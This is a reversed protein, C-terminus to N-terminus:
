WEKFKKLLEETEELTKSAIDKAGRVKKDGRMERITLVELMRNLAEKRFELANGILIKEHKTLLMEVFEGKRIGEQITDNVREVEQPTMPKVSLKNKEM